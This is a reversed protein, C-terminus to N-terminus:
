ILPPTIVASDTFGRTYIFVAGGFDIHPQQKMGASCKAWQLTQSTNFFCSGRLAPYYTERKGRWYNHSSSAQQLTEKGLATTLSILLVPSNLSKGQVLSLFFLKVTLGKSWWLGLWLCTGPVERYRVQVIPIVASNCCPGSLYGVFYRPLYCFITTAPTGTYPLLLLFPGVM